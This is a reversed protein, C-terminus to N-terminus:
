LRQFNITKSQALNIASISRDMITFETDDNVSATVGITIDIEEKKFADQLGKTIDTYSIVLLKSTDYDGILIVDKVGTIIDAFKKKSMKALFSGSNKRLAKYSDNHIVYVNVFSNKVIGKLIFIFWNFYVIGFLPDVAYVPLKLKDKM